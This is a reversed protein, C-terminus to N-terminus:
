LSNNSLLCLSSFNDLIKSFESDKWMKDLPKNSSFRILYQEKKTDIGFRFLSIISNFGVSKSKHMQNVYVNDGVVHWYNVYTTIGDKEFVRSQAPLLARGQSNTMPVEHSKDTMKWGNGVWCIDPTHTHVEKVPMKGPGWYAVYLIVENSGKKYRRSIYEDFNLISDVRNLMEETEALPVDEVQWGPVERVIAEELSVKKTPAVDKVANYYLNVAIIGALVLSCIIALTTKM